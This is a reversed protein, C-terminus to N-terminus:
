VQQGQEQQRRRRAELGRLDKVSLNEVKVKERREYWDRRKGSQLAAVLHATETPLSSPDLSTWSLSLSHRIKTHPTYPRQHPTTTPPAPSPSPSPTSPTPLYNHKFPFKPQGNWFLVGWAQGHAKRDTLDVAPGSSSGSTSTSATASSDVASTVQGIEMEEGSSFADDEQGFDEDEDKAKGKVEAGGTTTKGKMAGGAAENRGLYQVDGAAAGGGATAPKVRLKTRTIKYFSNPFREKWAVPQVLAGNGFAPLQALLTPLTTLRPM